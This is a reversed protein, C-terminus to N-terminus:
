LPQPGRKLVTCGGQGEVIRITANVPPTEVRQRAGGPWWVEVAEIARGRGLGFHQECPLCGFGSGGGVHRHQERGGALLKIRAGIADRNCRTGVLRVNLYNGPLEVPRFVSTTLLDGPYMGGSAAILHLRGDGTLDALNAGHAKGAVPLGAAFTVNRFRGQGDNELVVLPESRDMRPGGNGLLLDLHGDNNTDGANGSMSGWSEHIGLERSVSTFTGDRNNHLIRLPAGHPPGAGHRYSHIMDEFRCWICQVIDLWGDDDYDCFFAVMGLGPEDIGAERSVDTFTGDGNNHYLSARGFMGSLFLDPYGDNDYDGWTAGITPWRKRLGAAQAVETFTGDGNNRYLCDPRTRHFLGGLNAPVFLDLLGDCDYDIWSATFGPTWTNVGAERTVDTFTGDGNNRYLVADGDLFGLRTVFVDPFGDNNYDGIAIGWANVCADLGSSVSVDTFTGDGNNRYLSCGGSVGSFMVDLHGDGDFDFVASGRGGSTKDLGIRPGVEEYRVASPHLGAAMELRHEPRTEPPYGGIKQAALWTWYQLRYQIRDNVVGEAMAAAGLKAAREHEGGRYLAVVSDYLAQARVAPSRAAIELERVAQAHLGCKVYTRALELRVRADDPAEELRKRYRRIEEGYQLSFYVWLDLFTETIELVFRPARRGLIRLAQLVRVTEQAFLTAFSLPVHALLGWSRPIAAFSQRAADRVERSMGRLGGPGAIWWYRALRALRNSLESVARDVDGPGAVPPDVPPRPAPQGTWRGLAAQMSGLASGVALLGTEIARIFPGAPTV